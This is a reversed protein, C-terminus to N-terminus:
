KGKCIATFTGHFRQAAHQLLQSSVHLYIQSSEVNVHGMATALIPLKSNVDAGEEYWRLVCNGAYSHRLDHLRPPQSANLGIECHRTMQRFTKAALDYDIRKGSRSLFLPSSDGSPEFANRRVLYEEVANMTTPHLVVYREKGLKGKRVFLLRRRPDLDSLDLALAESIRLGTVYLLGVLTHFCHPRLSGAPGLTKAHRLLAAIDEPSYLYWRPLRSRKVPINRLVHSEPDLRNLYRSFVRVTSLQSYRSNPTLTATHAIYADVIQPTLTTQCFGQECLFWDFRKLSKAQSTYDFGEMRKFTVFNTIAEAMSSRFALATMM